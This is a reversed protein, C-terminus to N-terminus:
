IQVSVVFPKKSEDRETNKVHLVGNFSNHLFLEDIPTPNVTAIEQCIMDIDYRDKDLLGKLKDCTICGDTQLEPGINDLRHTTFTTRAGPTHYPSLKLNNTDKPITPPLQITVVRNSSQSSGM